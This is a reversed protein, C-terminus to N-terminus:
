VCLKQKAHIKSCHIIEVIFSIAASCCVFLCIFSCFLFQINHIGLLSSLFLYWCKFLSRFSHTSTIVNIFQIKQKIYKYKGLKATQTTMKVFTFCTNKRAITGNRSWRVAGCRVHRVTESCKGFNFVSATSFRFLPLLSYYIM